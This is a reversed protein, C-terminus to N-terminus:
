KRQMTRCSAVRFHSDAETYCLELSDGKQVGQFYGDEDAMLITGNTMVVGVLDECSSKSCWEGHFSRQDESQETVKLTFMANEMNLFYDGEGLKHESVGARAGWNDKEMWTGILDGALVFGSSSVLFMFFCAAAFFSKM